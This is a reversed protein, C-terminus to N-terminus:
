KKRSYHQKQTVSVIERLPIAGRQKENLFPMVESKAKSSMKKFDEFTTDKKFAPKIEKNFDLKELLCDWEKPKLLCSPMPVPEMDAGREHGPPVLKNIVIEPNVDIDKIVAEFVPLPNCKHFQFLFPHLNMPNTKRGKDAKERYINRYHNTILEGFVKMREEKPYIEFASIRIDSFDNDAFKPYDMLILLVRDLNLYQELEHEDRISFLWKSDNRREINASGCDPCMEEHRMVRSGCDKCKDVQDVKNCSKVETGDELDDGRAGSSTGKVGTILSALHQGLYGIKAAPTQSTIESWSLLAKRPAIILDNIFAKIKQENDGISIKSKDPLM